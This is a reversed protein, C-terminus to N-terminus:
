SNSLWYSYHMKNTPKWYRKSAREFKLKELVVELYEDDPHRLAFVYPAKLVRFAYDIMLSGVESGYGRHWKNPMIALYFQYGRDVQHLGCVGIFANEIKSFVPFNCVGTTQFSRKEEGIMQNINQITYAFSTMYKVIDPNGWILYGLYEDDKDWLTVLVKDNELFVKRDKLEM